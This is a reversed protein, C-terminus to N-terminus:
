FKLRLNLGYHSEISMNTSQNSNVINACPVCTYETIFYQTSTRPWRKGTSCFLIAKKHIFLYFLDNCTIYFTFCISDRKYIYIKLRLYDLSSKVKPNCRLISLIWLFKCSSTPICEIIECFVVFVCTFQRSIM